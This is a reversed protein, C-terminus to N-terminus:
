TVKNLATIVKGNVWVNVLEGPKIKLLEKAVKKSMRLKMVWDHHVTEQHISLTKAQPDVATVLGGMRWIYPKASVHEKEAAKEKGPAEESKVAEGSKETAPKSVGAPEEKKAKEQALTLGAVSLAFILAIWVVFLKKMKRKEEKM